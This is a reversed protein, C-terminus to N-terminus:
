ESETSPAAEKMLRLVEEEYEEEITLPKKEAESLKTEAESTKEQISKSFDKLTRVGILAGMKFIPDDPPLERMSYVEEKRTQLETMPRGM